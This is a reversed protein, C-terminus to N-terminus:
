NAKVYELQYIRQEAPLSSITLEATDMLEFRKSPFLNRFKDVPDIDFDLVATKYHMPLVIKPQLAEVQSYAQSANITYTGGVPIMLIDVEGILDLQAKNLEVGLDGLHVIKLDDVNLVFIINKGRKKGEQDDHFSDIGKITIGAVQHSGETKIITPNGNITEVANHDFHDHSVTIIDASDTIPAYGIEPYPDTLINTGNSATILFCAHGWWKIKM